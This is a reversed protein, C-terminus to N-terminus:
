SAEERRSIVRDYWINMSVRSSCENCHVVENVKHLRDYPHTCLNDSLSVEGTFLIEGQSRLRYIQGRIFPDTYSDMLLRYSKDSNPDIKSLTILKHLEEIPIENVMKRAIDRYMVEDTFHDIENFLEQNISVRTQHKM